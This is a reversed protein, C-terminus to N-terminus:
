PSRCGRWRGSVSRPHSLLCPPSRKRSCHSSHMISCASRSATSAPASGSRPVPSSSRTRTEAPTTPPPSSHKAREAWTAAASRRTASCLLLPIRRSTDADALDLASLANRFHTAADEYAFQEAARHGAREAYLAAKGDEAAPSGALFHHALEPLPPTTGGSAELSEAVARHAQARAPLALQDYLVDRILAHTFGFALSGHEVVLHARAGADLADLVQTRTKGAAQEVLRVTLEEGVVAAARLVDLAEPPVRALRHELLARVTAPLSRNGRRPDDALLRALEGVFLPNGSSRRHVDAALQSATDAGVIPRMMSEVAPRDLGGLHVTPVTRALELLAGAVDDSLADTDPDRATGVVAIADDRTEGLLFRLLRFTGLDAGHLDDLVVALPERAAARRLFSAVADYMRFRPDDGEPEAPTALHLGSRLDPVLRALEEVDAGLDDVLVRREFSAALSRLVRAWHAHARAAGPESVSSWVVRMGDQRAMVALEAVLRSKGVGAEGIVLVGSANGRVAARLAIQLIDLERGRGVFSPEAGADTARRM